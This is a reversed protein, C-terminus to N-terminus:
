IVRDCYVSLPGVLGLVSGKVGPARRPLGLLVLRYTVPPVEGPNFDRPFPPQDVTRVHGLLLLTM